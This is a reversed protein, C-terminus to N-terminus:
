IYGAPSRQGHFEGALLVAIPQWKKRWAIKGVWPYLWRRGCQCASEKGGSFCKWSAVAFYEDSSDETDINIHKEPPDSHVTTRAAVFEVWNLRWLLYRWLLYRSPLFAGVISLWLLFVDTQRTWFGEPHFSGQTFGGIIRGQNSKWTALLAEPFVIFENMGIM